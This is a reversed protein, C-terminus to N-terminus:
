HQIWTHVYLIFELVFAHGVTVPSTLVTYNASYLLVMSLLYKRLLWHKIGGHCLIVGRDFM